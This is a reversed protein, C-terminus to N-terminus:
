QALVQFYRASDARGVRAYADSLVLLTKKSYTAQDYDKRLYRIARQYNGANLLAIGANTNVGKLTPDLLSALLFANFAKPYDSKKNYADGLNLLINKKDPINKTLAKTLQRIGADLSDLKILCVGQYFLSRNANADTSPVLRFLANASAYHKQRYAQMAQDFYNTDTNTCATCCLFFFFSVTLRLM